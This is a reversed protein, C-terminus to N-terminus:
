WRGRKLFMVASAPNLLALVIRWRSIIETPIKKFVMRPDAPSDFRPSPAYAIQSISPTVDLADVRLVEAVRARFEERTEGAHRRIGMDWLRAVRAIYNMRARRTPDSFLRWGWFLFLKIAILLLVLGTILAAFVEPDPTEWVNPLKAGPEDKAIDKPLVEEGPGVMNMLEQLLKMDVPTEGHNEVHQPQPDFPVWGKDKIYIEAWAHRDNVRLLIHGDLSQSLDTLYGTGIRAPIGLARMLYVMAHAFHVCYGRRDGFLFPAVPDEGPKIERDPTLTYIANASFWDKIALAKAVDSPIGATLQKAFETYRYDPHTRLYHAKTEEDWRPDGVEREDLTDLKYTPVVSYARFAAKFRGPDPNKLQRISLPYDIAFATKTEALLFVSQTLPVRFDLSVDESGTYADDPSIRAVDTDFRPEAIVMEHGNFESLASERFYLVPSFPNEKYDGELRVLATPFNNGGLRSNFNLPSMQERNEEGVGTGARAGAEAYFAVYTLRGVFGVIAVLLLGGFLLGRIAARRNHVKIKANGRWAAPAGPFNAVLTFSLLALITAAGIAILMTLPTTGFAWALSNIEQPRDFHFNRHGAVVTVAAFSLLLLELTLGHASRWFFWTSVIALVAFIGVLNGHAVLDPITFLRPFITPPVQELTWALIRYAASVAILLSLLGLTRLRSFAFYTAAVVGLGAAIALVTPSTGLEVVRNLAFICVCCFLSRLIVVIALQLRARPEIEVATATAM